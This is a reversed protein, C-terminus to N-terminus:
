CIRPLQEGSLWDVVRRGGFRTNMQVFRHADEVVVGIRAAQRGLPHDHMAALLGQAFEPACIAVLKGENAVYLPDLGLLECAADVQPKVPIAAEELLMGAGSQRAIENLTTALGGRTPDRLVRVGGPAAALMVAVLGHLAASDSEITTEFELSERQSLVAVGHDGVTGSLLIVDGPRANAGSVDVGVPVVGIGTTSIFVGDGKGKEVVKTDGTIVPVGAERAAAAMADVIRKLEALPFGEELIFSASLYLPRAGCMAVDNITGHVALSGLDGGPFFLPSVVHADTAMVMRAGQPIAFAAGDNGQALWENALAVQFLEEILQASARGGAGHSMDVRGHRIDLPRVHDKKAVNSM